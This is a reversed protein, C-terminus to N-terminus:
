SEYTNIVMALEAMEKTALIVRVRICAKPTPVHLMTIAIMKVRVVNM